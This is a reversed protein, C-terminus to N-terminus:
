RPGDPQGAPWASPWRTAGEAPAEAEPGSGNGVAFPFITAPPDPADPVAFSAALRPPLSEPPLDPLPPPTWLGASAREEEVPVATGDLEIPGSWTGWQAPAPESAPAPPEAPAPHSGARRSRHHEIDDLDLVVPETIAFGARRQVDQLLWAVEIAQQPRKRPDPALPGRLADLLGPPLDPREIRPVAMQLVRLLLSANSDTVDAPKEQPARGAILAYVTTALSYVDTAPTLETGKLVEPSAHYRMPNNLAGLGPFVAFRALGTETMLPEGHSGVVVRAPSLDGHVIGAVHATELAGALLVGMQLAREIELPGDQKLLTDLAEAPQPDTVIWPRHDDAHGWEHISIMSPHVGLRQATTAARDFDAETRGESLPPYAIVTVPRGLRDSTASFLSRAVREGILSLDRCGPIQPAIGAM